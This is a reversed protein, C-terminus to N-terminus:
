WRKVRGVRSTTITASQLGRSLVVKTNATGWGLGIPNFTVIPNSVTMEVGHQDPGPWRGRAVWSRDDWEDVRLSDQGITLRIRAARTVATGRAVALASTLETASREVAIWDLWGLLRPLAAAMAVGMLTITVALEALTHARRV